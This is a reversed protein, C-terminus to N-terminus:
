RDEGSIGEILDVVVKNLETANKSTILFSM